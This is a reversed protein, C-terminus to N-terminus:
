STQAGALAKGVIGANILNRGPTLRKTDVLTPVMVLAKEVNTANTTNRERTPGSMRSSTPNGVSLKGVSPVNTPSRVWTPARFASSSDLKGARHHCKGTTKVQPRERSVGLAVTKKLTVKGILSSFVKGKLHKQSSGMHNWTRLYTKILTRGTKVQSRM